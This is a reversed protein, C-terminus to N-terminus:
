SEKKRCKPKACEPLPCNEDLMYGKKIYQQTDPFDICWFESQTAPPPAFKHKHRSCNKLVNKLENESLNESRYFAECETCTFGNLQERTRKNRVVEDYKFSSMKDGNVSDFIKGRGEDINEKTQQLIKRQSTVKSETTCGSVPPVVISIEPSLAKYIDVSNYPKQSFIKLESKMVLNSSESILTPSATKVFDSNILDYPDDNLFQTENVLLPSSSNSINVPTCVDYTLEPFQESLVVMNNKFNLDPSDFFNKSVDRKCKYANPAYQKNSLPAKKCLCKKYIEEWQAFKKAFNQQKRKLKSNLHSVQEKLELNSKRLSVVEQQLKISEEMTSTIGANLKKNLDNNEKKLKEIADLYTSQHQEYLFQVKKIQEVFQKKQEM